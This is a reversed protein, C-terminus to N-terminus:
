RMAAAIVPKRAVVAGEISPRVPQSVTRKPPLVPREGHSLELKVPSAKSAGGLVAFSRLHMVWMSSLGAAVAADIMRQLYNASPPMHPEDTRASTYTFARVAEGGNLCHINLQVRQRYGSMVGLTELGLNSVDMLLGSVSKGAQPAIDAVGGGFFADYQWFGIRYNALVAPRVDFRRPVPRGAHKCFDLVAHTHVDSGYAFYLM